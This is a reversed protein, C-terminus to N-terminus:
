SAEAALDLTSHSDETPDETSDSASPQAAPSPFPATASRVARQDVVLRAGHLAVPVDDAVAASVLVQEAHRVREALAARRRADLEAFVDDLLLVPTGDTDADATLLDFAALRLALALSWSEGQSAYGRAPLRGIRLRWDDRQPGVLTVGRDLEADRAREVATLLLERWGAPDRPLDDPDADSTAGSTTAAPRADAPADRQPAAASVYSWTVSTGTVAETPGGALDRYAPRLFPGLDDLLQVRAAALEAGVDALQEDWVALTALTASPVARAPGRRLAAASRLLATRQRVVRDLDARVGALRPRRAVLLDDLYRRREGPDGKVLALDEPAFLVVQLLGLIERVRPVPARNVRARTARGPGLVVELVARRDGRVVEAGVLAEHAGDRVLPADTAVRHSSLTALYGVAELLNTKGQGNRGLVTTVGPSLTLDVETYSRFDRLRLRRVHM